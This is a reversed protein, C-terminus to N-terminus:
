SVEKRRALIMAVILFLVNVVLAQLGITSSKTRGRVAGSFRANGHSLPTEKRFRTPDFFEASSLTGCKVRNVAHWIPSSDVPQSQSTESKPLALIEQM